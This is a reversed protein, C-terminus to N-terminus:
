ADAKGSLYYIDISVQQKALVEMVNFVKEMNRIWNELEAPDVKGNYYSPKRAAVQDM